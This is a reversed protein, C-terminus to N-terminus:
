GIPANPTAPRYHAWVRSVRGAEDFVMTEAADLDNVSRYCLVVSHAGSYVSLGSFHLDPFRELARSFYDRLSARGRVLSDGMLNAAFPSSFEISDAYHALIADLDHSNWASMWESAFTKAESESMTLFEGKPSPVPLAKYPM